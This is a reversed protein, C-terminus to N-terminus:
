RQEGVAHGEHAAPRQIEGNGAGPERDLDEAVRGHVPGLRERKAAEGAVRRGGFERRVREVHGGNGGRAAAAADRLSARRRDLEHRRVLRERDRVGRRTRRPRARREGERFDVLTGRRALRVRVGVARAGRDLPELDVGRPVLDVPDLLEALAVAADADGVDLGAHSREVAVRVGPGGLVRERLIADPERDGVLRVEVRVRRGEPRGADGDRGHFVPRAEPDGRGRAVDELDEHEGRHRVVAEIGGLPM